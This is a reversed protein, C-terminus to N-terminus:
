SEPAAGWMEASSASRRDSSRGFKLGGTTEVGALLASRGWGCIGWYEGGTGGWDVDIWRGVMPSIWAWRRDAFRRCLCGTVGLVDVFWGIRGGIFAEPSRGALRAM